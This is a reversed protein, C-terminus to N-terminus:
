CSVAVGGEIRPAPAGAPEEPARLPRRLAHSEDFRALANGLQRLVQRQRVRLKGLVWLVRYTPYWNDFNPGCRLMTQAPLREMATLLNYIIQTSGAVLFNKRKTQTLERHNMLWLPADALADRFWLHTLLYASISTLFAFGAAPSITLAAGHASLPPEAELDKQLLTGTCNVVWTGEPVPIRRGDRLVLQPGDATEVAEDLYGNQVQVAEDIVRKEEPSLLAFICGDTDVGAFTLGYKEVFLDYVEDENQGDYRLALDAMTALLSTGGVYRKLGSPFTKDRNFFSTGAGALLHLERGPYRKAAHYAADVGTKGGGVVVIPKDDASMEEGLYAWSEPTVSRLRQTSLVLPKHPWANFGLAKIFRRAVAVPQSGDPRTVTIHVTASGDPELQERHEVYSSGFWTHLQCREGIVRLCDRLHELVEFRDALHSPEKGLRWPIDGATFFQYPQHLRVHDYTSNWMGGVHARKDILLIRASRPLHDTAVYLANLGAIGAGVVVLGWPENEHSTNM